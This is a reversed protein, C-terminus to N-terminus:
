KNKLHQRLRNLVKSTNTDSYIGFANVMVGKLHHKNSSIAVVIMEDAPDTIGEFRYIENIEFDEPSLELATENCKLWDGDDTITFSATYGRISLDNLAESATDYSRPITM